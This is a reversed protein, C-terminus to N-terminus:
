KIYGSDGCYGCEWRKGQIKAPSGCNPCRRTRPAPPDQRKQDNQMNQEERKQKLVCSLHIPFGIIICGLGLFVFAAEGTFLSMMLVVAGGILTLLSSGFFKWQCAVLIILGTVPLIIDM